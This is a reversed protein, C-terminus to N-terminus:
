NSEYIDEDDIELFEKCEEDAEEKTDFLMSGHIVRDMDTFIAKYLMDVKYVECERAPAVYARGSHALLALVIFLYFM